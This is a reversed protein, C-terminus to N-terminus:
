LGRARRSSAALRAVLGDPIPRDAPFTVGTRTAKPKLSAIEEAHATIAGPDVYLGHQKSFAAYGAIVAGGIRFGPM